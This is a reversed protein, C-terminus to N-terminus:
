LLELFNNAIDLILGVFRDTRVWVPVFSTEASVPDVLQAKQVSMNEGMEQQVRQSQDMEVRRGILLM